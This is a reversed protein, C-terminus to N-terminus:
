QRKRKINESYLPIEWTGEEAGGDLEGVMEEVKLVRELTEEEVFM